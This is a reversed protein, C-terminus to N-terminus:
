AAYKKTGAEIAKSRLKEAVEFSMLTKCDLIQWDADYLWFTGYEGSKIMIMPFRGETIEKKIYAAVKM